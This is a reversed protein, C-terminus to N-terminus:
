LVDLRCQVREAEQTREQQRYLEVAQQWFDRARDNQDLAACSHGLRELMDASQYVNGIARFVALAQGYHGIAQHHDGTRQEVYGLSLAADAIGTPDDHRQYTALAAQCYARANDHDGLRAAYLGMQTLTGAEWVPEDTTQLLRLARTAHYLAERADGRREWAWALTRLTLAQESTIGTRDALILAKHLHEIAEPHRGLETHARGFLRQARVEAVPDPLYAASDLAVQWAALEDHRHGRRVHFTSLTWALQWAAPHWRQAAATRLAALLNPHEADFWALASSVDSLQDTPIVVGLAPPDLKVPPRHPHLLHDAAHATHIYFDCVRQFAAQREAETDHIQAQECAYARLLDHFTYRFPQHETLMHARTLQNLLRRTDELDLAALSAAAPLGVDPGPHVGLLRFVRAAQSDLIQYSWSFATRVDAANEGVSLTDLRRRVDRLEGVLDSLSRAPHLAAQAAAINLALPLRACVDVLEDVVREGDAASRPGLRAALLHRAEDQTLLGLTLPLAGDLAVLGGLRNRSTVLVLCDPSGPLLPRVQEADRANDLVILVRLGALRSRYLAAQEEPDVPIHGPQVGLAILFRRLAEASAMPTGSADFGHLNVFLQGDPFRDDHLQAWHVALATKGIGAPGDITSVAPGGDGVREALLASLTELEDARGIFHPVTAHLQRPAERPHVQYSVWRSRQAPPATSETDGVLIRQHLSRLESGPKVGLEDSLTRYAHQYATLAEAQRGARVLALMYQAHFRERLPHDATLVRLRPILREHLGLHLGAEAGDELVQLRLQELRPAVADRLSQSPIDLLPDARWLRVARTAAGTTEAWEGARLAAAARRCCGEFELVDMESQAVRILYGPHRAEIRTAGQAGLTQRLRRVYSRLTREAGPPPACDWVAEALRETPVPTNAQLLLAALLVRL